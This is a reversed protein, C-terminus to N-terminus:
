KGLFPPMSSLLDIKGYLFGVGTPGCMQFFYKVFKNYNNWLFVLLFLNVIRVKHSSAVLFDVNLSHVDVTMHPVSQCADVLM